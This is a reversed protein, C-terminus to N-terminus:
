RIEVDGGVLYDDLEIDAIELATAVKLISRLGIPVGKIAKEFVHPSVQADCALKYLPKKRALALPLIKARNFRFM